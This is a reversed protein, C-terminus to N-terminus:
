FNILYLLIQFLVASLIFSFCGVIVMIEEVKEVFSLDPRKDYLSDSLKSVLYAVITLGVCGMSSYAFVKEVTSLDSLRFGEYFPLIILFITSVLNGIFGHILQIKAQEIFKPDGHSTMFKMASYLIVVDSIILIFFLVIKLLIM